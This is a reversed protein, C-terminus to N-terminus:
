QGDDTSDAGGNGGGGNGGGNDSAPGTSVTITVTTGSAASSGGSPTQSIVVGAAVSSSSQESVSVAFGSNRLESTAESESWGVVSPVDTKASGTSVTITISSGKDATGTVSQRIVLGEDVTDSDDYVVSVDFGADQLKATADSEGWGVVDPVDVEEAGLSLQYTVTDGAKVTTGAPPDQQAVKGVEVDSSHVGDGAKPVLNHKALEAEAES